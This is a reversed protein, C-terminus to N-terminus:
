IFIKHQLCCILQFYSSISAVTLKSPEIKRGAAPPSLLTAPAAVCMVINCFLVAHGATWRLTTSSKIKKNCLANKVEYNWKCMAPSATDM